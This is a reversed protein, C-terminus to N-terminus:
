AAPVGLLETLRAQGEDPDFGDATPPPVAADLRALKDAALFPAVDLVARSEELKGTCAVALDCGAALAREVRSAPDGELAGMGLDDSLLLGGFGAAGRILEGIM